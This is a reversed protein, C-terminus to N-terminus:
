GPEEPLVSTLTLPDALCADRAALAAGRVVRPALDGLAVLQTTAFSPVTLREAVRARAPELLYRQLVGLYGGLMVVDPNVTGIVDDLAVGLFHGADTLLALVQPNGGDAAALIAGLAANPDTTVLAGVEARPVLGSRTLLATPGILSELCGRRGCGCEPGHPDINAHGFDGAGGHAGYFVSGDVVVAGGLERVGGLYVAVHPLPLQLEVRVAHLGALHRDHAVGVAVACLGAAALEDTILSRLPLGEWGLATSRGVTGREIEVYGPLAIEVAVLRSGDPVRSLQELLAERLLQWGMECGSDQLPAPVSTSWLERGGVTSGLFEFGLLDVQVGLACWPEGDIAVPRPPRGAGPRRVGRLERVLRRDRLEGVLDTMTSMALGCGSAIDNRSSPGRDRLHRLIRLLNGRRLDDTSWGRRHRTPLPRAGSM